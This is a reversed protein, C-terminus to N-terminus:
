TLFSLEPRLEAPYHMREGDGDWAILMQRDRTVYEILWHKERPLPNQIVVVLKADPMDQLFKYEYLQSIAKRVQDHANADRTSKMEFLYPVDDLVASMDVYKNYGPIAGAAKLRQAVLATLMRHADNARERAAGDVLVNIYEGAARARRPVEEYVRLDHRAPALPEEIDEYKLAAIDAPLNGLIRLRGAREQLMGIANLWSIVSSTRRHIM